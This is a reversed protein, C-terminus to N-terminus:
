TIAQCVLIWKHELLLLFRDGCKTKILIEVFVVALIVTESHLLLLAQCSKGLVAVFCVNALTLKLAVADIGSGLPSLIILVKLLLSLGSKVIIM